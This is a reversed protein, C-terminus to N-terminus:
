ARKNSQQIENPIEKPLDKFIIKIVAQNNTASERKVKALSNHKQAIEKLLSMIYKIDSDQNKLKTYESKLQFQMTYGVRSPFIERMRLAGYNAIEKKSTVDSYFSNFQQVIEQSAEEIIDNFKM